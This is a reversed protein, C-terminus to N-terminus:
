IKKKKRTLYLSLSFKAWLELSNPLADTAKRPQLTRLLRLAESVSLCPDARGVSTLHYGVPLKEKINVKMRKFPLTVYFFSLSFICAQQRSTWEQDAWEALALGSQLTTDLARDLDGVHAAAGVIRKCCTSFGTSWGLVWTPYLCGSHRSWRSHWM